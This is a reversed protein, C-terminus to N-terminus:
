LAKHRAIEFVFEGGRAPQQFTYGVFVEIPLRVFFGPGQGPQGPMDRPQGFPLRGDQQLALEVKRRNRRRARRGFTAVFNHM